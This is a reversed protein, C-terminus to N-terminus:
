VKTKKMRRTPNTSEANKPNSGLEPYITYLPKIDFGFQQDLKDGRRQPTSLAEYITAHLPVEGSVVLRSQPHLSRTQRLPPRVLLDMKTDQAVM